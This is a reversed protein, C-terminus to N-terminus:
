PRLLKRMQRWSAASARLAGAEMEQYLALARRGTATVTMGGGKRGGRAAEVVPQRFCKNMMKILTWARMYSMELRRAAENLSGTEAVLALLEAKGPGLAIKAGCVVRLRPKLCPESRTKRAAM